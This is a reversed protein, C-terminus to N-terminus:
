ESHQQRYALKNCWSCDIKKCPEFQNSKINKDVQLVLNKIYNESSDDPVISYTHIRQEDPIIFTYDIKDIQYEPYKSKALLSYLIAQRWYTGGYLEDTTPNEPDKFQQLENFPALKLGNKANKFKGTKFDSIVIAHDKFDIKDVFGTVLVGHINMEISEETLYDMNEIDKLYKEYLIPFNSTLSQQINKFEIDTMLYKYKYIEQQAIVLLTELSTETPDKKIREFYLELVKHYFNGVTMNLSIESPINIIKEFFFKQPCELYTNISSHSLRFNQIRNVVYQNEFISEEKIELLTKNITEFRLYDVANIAYKNKIIFPHQADKYNMEFPLESVFRNSKNGKETDIFDVLYLKKKARTMAVYLLRRKEEETDKSETEKVEETTKNFITEPLYMKEGIKQSFRGAGYVFVYEFELGKSKHYTMLKISQESKIHKEYEISIGERIYDDIKSLIDTFTTENQRKMMNNLFQDLVEIKQFIDLRNEQKIAWEKINFSDLVYHFYRQPPLISQQKICQQLTDFHQKIHINDSYQTIYEVLNEPQKENLKAWFESIEYLSLESWPHLLLSGISGKEIKKNIIFHQIFQFLQLLTQIFTDDLINENKSIDYPIELVNLYESFSLALDNKPFLVAIENYKVGNSVLKELELVIPLHVDSEATVEVFEVPEVSTSLIPHSAILKKELTHGQVINTIRQTNNEIIARSTELVLPTSRYNEELIVIRELQEEVPFHSLYKSYFDHINYLNAGQFRFIAQDEDGVVMINPDEIDTNLSNILQLQAGNTDQFEDIMIIQFQEQFDLRLPENQNLIEIARIILDDYDLWKKEEIIANYQKYLECAQLNKDIKAEFKLWDNEKFDGPNFHGTKRKYYFAESSKKSVKEDQLAQIYQAVDIKESKIQKFFNLLYLISSDVGYLSKKLPTNFDISDLLERIIIKKDLEDLFQYEESPNSENYRNIIREGFSHFTYVHIDHGESGILEILRQKMAAVGPNTYTLCLINFPRFDTNQLIYGVRTSLLQTKGTGPGAIVMLPGYITEVAKRQKDNLSHFAREYTNM